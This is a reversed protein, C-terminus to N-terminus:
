NLQRRTVPRDNVSVVRGDPGYVVDINQSPRLSEVEAAIGQVVNMYQQLAQTLMMLQQRIDEMETQRRTENDSLISKFAAVTRVTGSGLSAGEVNVGEGEQEEEKSEMLAAQVNESISQVAKMETNEIELKRNQVHLEMNQKQIDLLSKASELVSREAELKAVEAKLEAENAGVEQAKQQIVMEAQQLMQERQQLAQAAQDIQAMAAQVKPDIPKKDKGAEQQQIQPPLMTKLRDAIQESGPADMNRFVIDGILGMLEPKAQILQLQNTAAEQRKSTYSPGTSVTVDYKGVNLNYSEGIEQGFKDLRPMVAEEQDPNLYATSAEEDEGLMRAVRQTDYVRPIWELLIRGCHQISRALNDPFHFNGVMGQSKQEQLAIGSKEQSKAGVSPGYMGISAEIGHETNQLMQQWGPSIGAPPTRQPPPLPQGNEDVHNFTLVAINRRNADVYDQERGAVGEAPAVWPAKPALAVHEIFGAHAYNHLRQPDMMSEIAGSLRVKGDPMVLENGTVKVVPIYTGLLEREELIEAGTIKYWRVKKTNTTRSKDAVLGPFVTIAQKLEEDTLTEGNVMHITTAEQKIQFYEAVRITEEDIWGESAEFNVMNANPYQAKFEDKQVDEWLLAEQSDSGDIESHPGLAVSFCNPIRKVLIDQEFSLPDCYETLIRFYGFGGEIAHEGATTYAGIANSAYEIHRIIGTLTKAVKPDGKDDVPSIKIAARNQREENIIQRVYQNTKDLVPCPRPGDKDNERDHKVADPWQDLARFRKADKARAINDSNRSEYDELCKKAAKIISDGDTKKELGDM